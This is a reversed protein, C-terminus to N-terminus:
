CLRSRVLTLLIAFCWAMFFIPSHLYLEVIRLRPLLHLHTTLEVSRSAYWVRYMHCACQINQFRTVVILMTVLSRPRHGSFRCEIGPSKRKCATRHPKDLICRLSKGLPCLPRPTVSVMGTQTTGCNISRHPCAWLATSCIRCMYGYCVTQLWDCTCPLNHTYPSWSKLKARTQDSTRVTTSIFLETKQFIVCYLGNLAVSTESSCIAKM